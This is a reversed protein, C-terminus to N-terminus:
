LHKEVKYAEKDDDAPKKTADDAFYVAFSNTPDDKTPSVIVLPSQLPDKTKYIEASRLAENFDHSNAIADGPNFFVIEDM